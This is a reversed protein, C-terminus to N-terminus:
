PQLVHLLLASTAAATLLATAAHTILSIWNPARAKRLSANLASTLERVRAGVENNFAASAAEEMAQTQEELSKAAVENTRRIIHNVASLQSQEAFAKTRAQYDEIAAKTSVASSILEASMSRIAPALQDLRNLLTDLEGLM